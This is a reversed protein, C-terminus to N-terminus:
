RQNGNNHDSFLLYDTISLSIYNNYKIENKSTLFQAAYSLATQDLSSAVELVHKLM